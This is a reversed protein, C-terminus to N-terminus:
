NGALKRRSLPPPTASLAARRATDGFSLDETRRVPASAFRFNSLVVHIAAVLSYPGNLEVYPQVSNAVNCDGLHEPSRPPM